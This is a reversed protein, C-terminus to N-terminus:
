TDRQWTYGPYLDGFDGSTTGEVLKNTLSLDAALMGADVDTKQVGRANRVTGSVVGLIAFTAMFFIGAAIVVELLTFAAPSHCTVLPVHRSRRPEANASRVKMPDDGGSGARHHM